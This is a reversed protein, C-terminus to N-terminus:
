CIFDKGFTKKGLTKQEASPLSNKSFIQYKASPLSNRQPTNAIQCEPFKNINATKLTLDFRSGLMMKKQVQLNNTYVFNTVLAYSGTDLWSFVCGEM